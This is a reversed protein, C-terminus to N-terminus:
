RRRRGPITAPENFRLELLETGTPPSPVLSRHHVRVMGYSPASSTPSSYAARGPHSVECAGPVPPRPLEGDPAPTAYVVAYRLDFWESWVEL